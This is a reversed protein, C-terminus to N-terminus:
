LGALFAPVDAAPLQEPNLVTLGEAQAARLLRQDSAVLVLPVSLSRGARLLRLLASLLAADVSNVNHRRILSVGALVAPEDIPILSLCAAGFVDSQLASTAHALTAASITGRNRHRGLVAVTEVYGWISTLMDPAPATTFLANVTASGAEPLYRKVLASADWFLTPL